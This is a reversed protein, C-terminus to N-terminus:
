YMKSCVILTFWSHIKYIWGICFDILKSILDRKALTSLFLSTLIRYAM